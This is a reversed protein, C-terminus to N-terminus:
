SAIYLDYRKISDKKNKQLNEFMEEDNDLFDDEYEEVPERSEVPTFRPDKM